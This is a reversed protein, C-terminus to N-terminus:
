FPLGRQQRRIQEATEPNVRSGYSDQDAFNRDYVFGFGYTFRFSNRLVFLFPAVVHTGVNLIDNDRLFVDDELGAFVADLNVPITLEKDTGPERRIIECRQPWALPTFGGTIAIAQKITIDRDGFAYVGPRNVEGMLYFVSTDAPVNIVDRNRIVVNYRPSGARLAPLDIEIVRQELAYEDVDEWDFPEELDELDSVDEEPPLPEYYQPEPELVEGTQPDFIMSPLRQQLAGDAEQTTPRTQAGPPSLVEALEDRTPGDSQGGVGEQWSLGHSVLMGGPAAGMEEEPPPIIWEQEEPQAPPPLAPVETAPATQRRIIYLRRASASVDGVMAIADLLRLDPASIPYAGPGSVAGMMYFLQGRRAQTFVQVVPNTLLGSEVIRAKLEREIEQETLGAVKVTGLEPLRVEGLPNVELTAGWPQGVEVLHNISISLVDGPALRYETYWAVLDEPIPETAGPLGPPTDRPTMVRRIGSEHVDLGFRGVKTPDLFSNPPLAACGTLAYVLLVSPALRQSGEGFWRRKGM